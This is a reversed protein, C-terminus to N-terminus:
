TGKETEILPARHAAQEPLTEGHLPHEIKRGCQCLLRKLDTVQAQHPLDWHDTAKETEIM